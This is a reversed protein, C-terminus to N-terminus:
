AIEVRERLYRRREVVVDADSLGYDLAVVRGDIRGLDAPKGECDTDPYPANKVFEDAEHETVPQSAKRMVLFLGFPGAAVVPCLMTWQPFRPRWKRWIEREWRNCRLGASLKRIRPVKIVARYFPFVRRFTGVPM